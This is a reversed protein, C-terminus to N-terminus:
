TRSAAESRRVAPGPRASRRERSGCQVRQTRVTWDELDLLRRIGTRDAERAQCAQLVDAVVLGAAVCATAEDLQEPAPAEALQRWLALTEQEDPTGQLQWQRTDAYSPGTTRRATPGVILQRGQRYCRQRIVDRTALLEDEDSWRADPLWGAVSVVACVGEVARRTLLDGRIVSGHLALLDAVRDAVACRGLVLSAGLDAAVSSPASTNIVSRVLVSYRARMAM